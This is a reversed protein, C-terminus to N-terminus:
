GGPQPPCGFTCAEIVVEVPGAAPIGFAVPTVESEQGSAFGDCLGTGPDCTCADTGTCGDFVTVGIQYAGAPAAIAQNCATGGSAEFWCESPMMTPHAAIQNWTVELAEGAPIRYATSLCADCLLQGATQLEDCSQSCTGFANGYYNGDPGAAPQITYQLDDCTAPIYVDVVTENVFRLTLDGPSTADAFTSCSSSGGTGGGGTSAAGSGGEGGGGQTEVDSGCGVVLMAFAGFFLSARIMDSGSHM